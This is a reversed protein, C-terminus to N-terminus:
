CIQFTDDISGMCGDKAVRSGESIPQRCLPDPTLPLASYGRSQSASGSALSTVRWPGQYGLLGWLKAM